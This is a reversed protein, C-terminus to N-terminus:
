NFNFLLQTSHNQIPKPIISPGNKKRPKRSHKTSLAYVFCNHVKTFLYHQTQTPQPSPGFEILQFFSILIKYPELGLRWNTEFLSIFLFYLIKNLSPRIWGFNSLNAVSKFILWFKFNSNEAWHIFRSSALFFTYQM